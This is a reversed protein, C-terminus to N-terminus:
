EKPGARDRDRQVQAAARLIEREGDTLRSYTEALRARDEVLHDELFENLTMGFYAAIRIADEYNTKATDRQLLKRMQEYSVGTAQSIARLTTAPRADIAQQLATRLTRAM